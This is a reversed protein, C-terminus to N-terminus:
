QHINRNFFKVNSLHGGNEAEQIVKMVTYYASNSKLMSAILKSIIEKKELEPLHPYILKKPNM